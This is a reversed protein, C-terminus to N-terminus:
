YRHAPVHLIYMGQLRSGQRPGALLKCPTIRRRNGETCCSITRQFPNQQLSKQKSSAPKFEADQIGM